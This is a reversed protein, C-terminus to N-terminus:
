HNTIRKKEETDRMQTISRISGNLLQACRQHHSHMDLSEQETIYELDFACICHDLLKHLSGRAQRCYRINDTCHFRGFGEAINAPVSRSSRRIQDALAYREETPFRRLMRHVSARLQRASGWVNLDKFSQIRMFDCDAKSFVTATTRIVFLSYRVVFIHSGFAM